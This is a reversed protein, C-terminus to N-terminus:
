ERDGRQVQSASIPTVMKVGTTIATGCEPCRPEILGTLNYGCELCENRKKRGSRRRERISDRIPPIMLPIVLPWVPLRFFSSEVKWLPGAFSFPAFPQPGIKGQWGGGVPPVRYRDGINIPVRFVPPSPPGALAANWPGNDDAQSSVFLISQYEGAEVSFPEAPSHFWFLRVRGDYFHLLLVDRDLRVLKFSPIMVYSLAGFVALSAAILACGGAVIKGRGMGDNYRSVGAM